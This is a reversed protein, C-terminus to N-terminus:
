VLASEKKRHAHMCAIARVGKMRMFDLFNAARKVKPLTNLKPLHTQRKRGLM